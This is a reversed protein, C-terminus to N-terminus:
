EKNTKLEEPIEPRKYLAWWESGDYEERTAWLGNKFWVTGHLEQSGYGDYYEFDLSDIFKDLDEQTHGQKLVGSRSQIHGEIKDFRNFDFKAAEIELDRVLNLFERKANIM